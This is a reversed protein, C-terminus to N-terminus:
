RELDDLANRLARRQEANLPLGCNIGLSPFDLIRGGSRAEIAAVGLPCSAKRTVVAPAGNV